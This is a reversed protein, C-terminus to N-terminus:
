SQIRRRKQVPQLNSSSDAAVAGSSSNSRRLRGGRPRAVASGSAEQLSSCSKLSFDGRSTDVEGEKEAAPAASGEEQSTGDQTKGATIASEMFTAPQRNEAQPVLDGHEVDQPAEGSVEPAAAVVAFEEDYQQPTLTQKELFCSVFAAVTGKRINERVAAALALCCEVNHQQLLASGNMEHQVLLHRIYCRSERVSSSFGCETFQPEQQREEERVSKGADEPALGAASAAAAEVTEGAGSHSSESPLGDLCRTDEAYRPSLLNLQRHMRLREYPWAELLQLADRSDDEPGRRQQKEAAAAVEEASPMGFTWAVGAAASKGSAAAGGEVVDGGLLLAHLLELPGAESHVSLVRLLPREPTAAAAPAAARVSAVGLAQAAAAIMLRRESLRREAECAGSIHVAGILGPPCASLIQNLEAAAARLVEESGTCRLQAVLYPVAVVPPVQQQHPQQQQRQPQYVSPLPLACCCVGTSRCGESSGCEGCSSSCKSSSLLRRLLLHEGEEVTAVVLRVLTKLTLAVAKRQAKRTHQEQESQQQQLEHVPTTLMHCQALIALQALQQVSLSIRGSSTSTKLSLAFLADRGDTSICSLNLLLGHYDAVPHMQRANSLGNGGCPSGSAFPATCDSSTISAAARSGESTSCPCSQQQQQQQQQWAEWWATYLPLLLSFDGAVAALLVPQRQLARLQPPLLHLPLCHPASLSFSPTDTCGLLRGTRPLWELAHAGSEGSAAQASAGSGTLRLMAGIHRLGAAFAGPLSWLVWSHSKAPLLPQSEEAASGAPEPEFLPQRHLLLQQLAESVPLLARLLDLDKPQLLPGEGAAAVAIDATVERQLAREQEPVVAPARAPPAGAS